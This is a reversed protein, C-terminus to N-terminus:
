PCWRAEQAGDKGGSPENRWGESNQLQAVSSMIKQLNM